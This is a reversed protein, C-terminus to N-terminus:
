AWKRGISCHSSLPKLFALSHAATLVSAVWWRTAIGAVCFSRSGHHSPLLSLEPTPLFTRAGRSQIGLASWDSTDVQPHRPLGQASGLPRQVSRLACPM